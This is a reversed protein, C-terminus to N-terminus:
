ESLSALLNGETDILYVPGLELQRIEDEIRSRDGVVVWVLRDPHLVERAAANVDELTLARVADPYTRWYDLPWGFQV